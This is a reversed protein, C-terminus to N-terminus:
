LTNQSQQVVILGTKDQNVALISYATLQIKALKIESQVLYFQSKLDFFQSTNQNNTPSFQSIQYFENINQLNGTTKIFNRVSQAASAPIGYAELVPISAANPDVTTNSAPLAIIYPALEQYLKATIGEVLRLESPSTMPRYAPQYPPQMKSYPNDVEMQTPKNLWAFVHNAIATAQDNGINNDVHTILQAFIPLHSANMLNNLNFRGQASTLTATVNGNALTLPPMLLPWHQPPLPSKTMPIYTSKAWATTYAIYQYAQMANFDLESREIDINQRTMLMSAIGAVIAIILLATILAAGRQKISM